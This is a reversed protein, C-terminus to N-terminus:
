AAKLKKQAAGLLAMLSKYSPDHRGTKVNYITRESCGSANAAARLGVRDIYARIEDIPTKTSM